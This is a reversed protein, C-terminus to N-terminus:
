LSRRVFTAVWAHLLTSLPQPNKLEMFKALLELKNYHEIVNLEQRFLIIDPSLEPHM